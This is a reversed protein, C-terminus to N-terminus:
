AVLDLTNQTSEDGNEATYPNTNKQLDQQMQQSVELRAKMELMMATSAVQYDTASPDRPALAATRVRQMKAITEEPTRGGSADIPVEGGIAYQKNDPGKQYTFNAGGTVVGAGAALHAAEHARVQTDRTQLETIQAQQAPTLEKTKADSNKEANQASNQPLSQGDIRLFSANFSSGIQM